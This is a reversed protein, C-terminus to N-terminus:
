AAVAVPEEADKLVWELILQYSTAGEGAHLTISPLQTNTGDMALVYVGAADAAAQAKGAIATGGIKEFSLAKIQIAKLALAASKAPDVTTGVATWFTGSFNGIDLAVDASTGTIGLIVMQKYRKNVAEEAEIGYAKVSTLAFAM